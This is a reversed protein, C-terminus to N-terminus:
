LKATMSWESPSMGYLRSLGTRVTCIPTLTVWAAAPDNKPDYRFDWDVVHIGGAATVYKMMTPVVISSIFIANPFYSATCASDTFFLAGLYMLHGPLRLRRYGKAIVIRQTELIHRTGHYKIYKKLTPPASAYSPMDLSSGTIGRYVAIVNSGDLICVWIASDDFRDCIMRRADDVRFQTPAEPSPRWGMEEVFATYILQRSQDLLARDTLLEDSSPPPSELKLPLISDEYRESAFLTYTNTTIDPSMSFIRARLHSM